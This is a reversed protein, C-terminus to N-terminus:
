RIFGITTLDGGELNVDNIFDKKPLICWLCPYASAATSKGFFTAACKWDFNYTFLAHEKQFDYPKLAETITSLNHHSECINPSIAVM